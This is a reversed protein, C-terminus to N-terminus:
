VDVGDLAFILSLTSHFKYEGEPGERGTVPHIEVERTLYLHGTRLSLLRAMKM